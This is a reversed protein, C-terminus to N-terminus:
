KKRLIIFNQFRDDVDGAIVEAGKAALKFAFYGTGAGIDLIKKGTVDGIYELVKAPQQYADREPSDFRIVLDEFSTSNMHKNAHGPAHGHQHGNNDGHNHGEHAADGHSHNHGEGHEHNGHKCAFLFLISLLLISLHNSTM